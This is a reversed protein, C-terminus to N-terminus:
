AASERTDNQEAKLSNILAKWRCSIKDWGFRNDTYSKVFM